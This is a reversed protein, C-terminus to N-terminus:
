EGGPSPYMCSRGSSEDEGETSDTEGLCRVSEAAFDITEISVRGTACQRFTEEDAVGAEADSLLDAADAPQEDHLRRSLGRLQREWATTSLVTDRQEVTDRQQTM